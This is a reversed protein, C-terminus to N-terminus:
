REPDGPVPRPHGVHEGLHRTAAERRHVDGLGRGAPRRHGLAHGLEPPEVDPHVRASAMSYLASFTRTL